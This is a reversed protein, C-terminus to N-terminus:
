RFPFRRAAADLLQLAGSTRVSRDADGSTRDFVQQGLFRAPRRRIPQHHSPTGLGIRGAAHPLEALPTDVSEVRGRLGGGLSETM